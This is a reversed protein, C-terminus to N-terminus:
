APRVNNIPFSYLECLEDHSKAALNTVQEHLADSNRVGLGALRRFKHELLRPLNGSVNRAHGEPYMVLGSSLTGLARHTIELLTPIGDPYKDDFAAGGPRFDIKAMLERTLPHFLAADDYDEPLLM